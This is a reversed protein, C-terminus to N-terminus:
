LIIKRLKHKREAMHTGPISSLGDAKIKRGKSLPFCPSLYFEIAENGEKPEKERQCERPV